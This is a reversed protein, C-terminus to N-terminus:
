WWPSSIRRRGEPLASSIVTTSPRVVTNALIQTGPCYLVPTPQALPDYPMFIPGFIAIAVMSLFLGAGFM